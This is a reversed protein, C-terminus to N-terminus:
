PRAARHAGEVTPREICMESLAAVAREAHAPDDLVVDLREGGIQAKLEDSTGEAIVKGHDIVM